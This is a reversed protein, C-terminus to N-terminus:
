NEIDVRSSNVSNRIVKINVGDFKEQLIKKIEKIHSIIIINKFNKELIEFTQILEQYNESSVKGLIEDICIFNPCNVYCNNKISLKFAINLMIMEYGSCSNITLGEEINTKYKIIDLRKRNGNGIVQLKIKFNTYDKLIKNVDNEIVPLKNNLLISPLGKNSILDKYATYIKLEKSIKDFEIKSKNYKEDNEIYVELIRQETKIEKKLTKNRYLNENDEKICKNYEERLEDLQRILIEKRKKAKDNYIKNKNNINYNNQYDVLENYELLLREKDRLEKLESIILDKKTKYKKNHKKNEENKLYYKQKINLDELKERKDDIKDMLEQNKKYLERIKKIEFEISFIKNDLIKNEEDIEINKVNIDRDKILSIINNRLNIIDNDIKLLIAKIQSLEKMKIINDKKIEKNRTIKDLISQYNEETLLKYINDKDNQILDLNKELKEIIKEKLDNYNFNQGKIKSILEKEDCEIQFLMKNNKMIGEEIVNKISESGIKKNNLRDLENNLRVINSLIKDHDKVKVKSKKLMLNDKMKTLNQMKSVYDTNDVMKELEIIKKEVKVIKKKNNELNEINYIEIKDNEDRLKELKESIKKKDLGKIDMEMKKLKEEKSILDKVIYFNIKNNEKTLNKIDLEMKKVMGSDNFKIGKKEEKYQEIKNKSEVIKNSYDVGETLIKLLNKKNLGLVKVKDKVKELIDNFDDLRFIHEFLELTKKGTKLIGLDENNISSVLEFNDYDGLLKYVLDNVRKDGKIEETKKDEKYITIYTEIRVKDSKHADYDLIRKLEYIRDNVTFKIIVEGNNIDKDRHLINKDSIGSSSGFLGWKICNIISTKGLFNSGFIRYFGKKDFSLKNDINLGYNFVNKFRIENLIWRSKFISDNNKSKLVKHLDLVEKVEDETYKSSLINVIYEDVNEKKIEQMKEDEYEINNRRDTRIIDINNEKMEKKFDKIIDESDFTYIEFRVDIKKKEGLIVKDYTYGKDTINVKLICYENYVRYFKSSKKDIDWLVYGHDMINEGQNQQILSGSYCVTKERNLYQHKHIDGLLMLDFNGFNSIKYISGEKLVKEGNDLMCENLMGHFLSVYTRTKDEKITKIIKQDLLSSVTFIVNNFIYHGSDRLHYFNNKKAFPYIWDMNTTTLDVDHNGTIVIVPMLGTINDIFMNWLSIADPTQMNKYHFIDGCVVMVSKKIIKSHITLINKVLEDFVKKYEDMRDNRRIHLDALHFIYRIKKDYKKDYIEINTQDDLIEVDINKLALRSFGNLMGELKEISIKKINIRELLINCRDEKIMKSTNKIDLQSALKSIEDRHLNRVFEEVSNVDRKLYKLNDLTLNDRDCINLLKVILIRKNKLLRTAEDNSKKYFTYILGLEDKNKDYLFLLKEINKKYNDSVDEIKKVGEVYKLAKIEKKTLNM